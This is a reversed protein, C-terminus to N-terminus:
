FRAELRPRSALRNKPWLGSFRRADQHQAAGTEDALFQHPLQDARPWPANSTRLAAPMGSFM